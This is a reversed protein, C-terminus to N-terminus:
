SLGDAGSGKAEILAPLPAPPPPTALPMVPWRCSFETSNESDLRSASALGLLAAGSGLRRDGPAVLGLVVVVVSPEPRISMRAMALMVRPADDALASMRPDSRGANEAGWNEGTAGTSSDGPWPPPM